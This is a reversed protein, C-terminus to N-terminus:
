RNVERNPTGLERFIVKRGVNGASKKLNSSTSCLFKSWMAANSFSLGFEVEFFKVTVLFMFCKFVLFAGPRSEIEGFTRLSGALPAVLENVFM